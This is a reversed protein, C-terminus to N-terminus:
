TNLSSLFSGCTHLLAVNVIDFEVKGASIDARATALALDSDLQLGDGSDGGAQLPTRAPVNGLVLAVQNRVLMSHLLHATHQGLGLWLM